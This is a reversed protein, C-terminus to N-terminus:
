FSVTRLNYSINRSTKLPKVCRYYFIFRFTLCYAYITFKFTIFFILNTFLLNPYIIRKNSNKSPKIRFFAALFGFSMQKNICAFKVFDPQYINNGLLFSQFCTSFRFHSWISYTIKSEFNLILLFPVIPRRHTCFATYNQSNM